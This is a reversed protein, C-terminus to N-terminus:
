FNMGAYYDAGEKQLFDLWLVLEVADLIAGDKAGGVDHNDEIYRVVKLLEDAWEGKVHLELFARNVQNLLKDYQGTERLAERLVSADLNLPPSKEAKVYVRGNVRIKEPAKSM